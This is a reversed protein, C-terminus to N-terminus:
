SGGPLEPDDVDDAGARRFNAAFTALVAGVVAVIPGASARLGEVIAQQIVAGLGAAVGLGLPLKTRTETFATRTRWELSEHLLGVPKAEALELFEDWEALEVDDPKQLESFRMLRALSEVADLAGPVDADTGEMAAMVDLVSDEFRELAGLAEGEAKSRQHRVVYQSLRTSLREIMVADSGEVPRAIENRLSTLSDQVDQEIDPRDAWAGDHLLIQVQGILQETARALSQMDKEAPVGREISPHHDPEPAEFQAWYQEFAHTFGARINQPFMGGHEEGLPALGPFFGRQDELTTENALRFRVVYNHPGVDVEMPGIVVDHRHVGVKALVADVMSAFRRQGIETQPFPKTTELAVVVRNDSSAEVVQVM